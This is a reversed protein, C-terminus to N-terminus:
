TTKPPPWQRMEWTAMKLGRGSVHEKLSVSLKICVYLKEINSGSLSLGITQTIAIHKATVRTLVIATPTVYSYTDAIVTFLYHLLRTYFFLEGLTSHFKYPLQPNWVLICNKKCWGLVWRRNLLHDNMTKYKSIQRFLFAMTFCLSHWKFTIAWLMNYLHQYYSIWTYM